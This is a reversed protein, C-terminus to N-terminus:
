ERGRGSKKRAFPSMWLTGTTNENEAILLLDTGLNQANDRPKCTNARGSVSGPDARIRKLIFIPM